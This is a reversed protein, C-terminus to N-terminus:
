GFRSETVSFNGDDTAQNAGTGQWEWFWLGVENCDIDAHYNGASDKVLAADAPYTLTAVNASPDEYKFLVAAPDVAIGAPDTFAVSVRVENGKLVELTM